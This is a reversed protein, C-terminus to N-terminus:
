AHCAASWEALRARLGESFLAHEEYRAFEKLYAQVDRGDRLVLSGATTEITVM